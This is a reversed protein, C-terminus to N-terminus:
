GRRQRPIRRRAPPLEWEILDVAQIDGGDVPVRFTRIQYPGFDAIITRDIMPLEIRASAPRGTTEVARVILDCVNDESGKVATVLVAGRGDDAHTRQPPLSGPHFSELMARPPMALEAARRPLGAERWDGSHPVLLYRFSQVGQDQHSYSEQPDLRRPDHWAYVPSRVATIGISPTETATAPSVDYGHKANNVVALGAPHGNLLGSIEVWSQGPNECGDVPRELAGFPVEYFSSPEELATPFCLKLLHGAERWDLTLRAELHDDRHGLILEEVMTSSRWEREIRLRARLPGAEVLTIRKTRMAEGPGRYSVVRHGWTDTADERVLTHEGCAGAVADLGTRKDLLSTLWGTEPDITVRLIANELTTRTARLGTEAPLAHPRLRFLSYGM